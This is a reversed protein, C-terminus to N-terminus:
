ALPRGDEDMRSSLKRMFGGVLEFIHKAEEPTYKQDLHMTANRYPNQMAALAAYANDFFEGDGSMRNSSGPWRVEIEASVKKLTAGWNRDSARTPDPIGLCRAMARIAAELARISHFASATSRDLSLCKASEDIEYSISPFRALVEGGFSSEGTEYFKAQAGDLVLLKILGLEDALRSRIEHISMKLTEFTTSGTALEDQLRELEKLSMRADLALLENSLQESTKKISKIFNDDNLLIISIGGDERELISKKDEINTLLHQLANSAAYFARANLELMDWLSWLRRSSFGVAESDHAKTALSGVKRLM